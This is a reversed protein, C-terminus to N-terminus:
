PNIIIKKLQEINQWDSGCVYRPIQWINTAQSARKPECTFAAQINQQQKPFYEHVLYDNFHGYPYAFLQTNKNTLKQNIYDSAQQIQANADSLNTVEAFNGKLNRSHAVKDLTIHLHDWSHNEISILQSNEALQWWADNWITHGALCTQELKKRASASAIVFSTAHIYKPYAQMASFFSLQKGFKPHQWDKFDLESGDDFTLVVYKRKEDLQIEAKIWKVLDYSSLIKIDLKHLLELDQVFAVHDNNHYDNGLINLSHYTLVPIKM